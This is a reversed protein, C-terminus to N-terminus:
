RTKRSHHNVAAKYLRAPGEITYGAVAAPVLVSGGKNLQMGKGADPWDFAATGHICLLIEPAATRAGSDYPRNPPIDLVSLEFEDAESPYLKEQANIPRAEVVSLPGCQFDLVSLLAEVDVHKPTLGGRLVNDSNAMLEIAMGSLYAHLCGSPLFLAQGPQLRVLNLLIPSIVGVDGPYADNLRAMWNYAAQGGAMEQAAPIMRAILAQRKQPAMTMLYEFLPRIDRRELFVGVADWEERFEPPWLPDFLVRIEGPARFGCLAWFPTLACVCEPKHQDDRYNRHPASLPIGRANERAFGQEAMRKDPHAQISLPQDVALVKFLFPLRPGFRDIVAEGLLPLPDQRVLEALGQWRGQYWVKSPAKPHAGMWLEAQPHDSPVPQGLLEAIASRSGWAYPLVANQMKLLRNM